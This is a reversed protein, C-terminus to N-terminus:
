SVGDLSWNSPVTETITYSVFSEIGSFVKTNATTGDDVLSFDALPSPAAAFSFSKSGEPTAQKVITISAPFIVAAAQISRDQKGTSCRGSSCTFAVDATHYPSGSINVASNNLGWNRRDSIHGGWAVVATPGLARFSIVISTTSDALYSGSVSYSGLALDTCGGFCEVSGSIQTIDDSNGPIQDQGATVTPDVPIAASNAPGTTCTLGTGSCPDSGPEASPYWSTLYDIAHKGSKTTDWSITKRYTVGATLNTFVDRYPISDGEHYLASGANLNGNQWATGTCPTSGDSGNACQDLNVAANGFTALTTLGSSEGKATVYYAVPVDHAHVIFQSDFIDGAFDARTSFIRDAHIMPEEHILLTVTEGAQWGSSTIIVVEGPRYDARDTHLQVSPRVASPLVIQSSIGTLFRLSRQTPLGPSALALGAAMILVGSLVLAHKKAKM